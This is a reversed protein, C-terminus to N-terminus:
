REATKGAQIQCPRLYEGKAVRMALTKLSDSLDSWEQRLATEVDKGGYQNDYPSPKGYVCNVVHLGAFEDWSHVWGQSLEDDGIKAVVEELAEKRTVCPLGINIYPKGQANHFRCVPLYIM